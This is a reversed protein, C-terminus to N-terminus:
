KTDDELRKKQIEQRKQKEAEIKPLNMYNSGYGLRHNKRRALAMATIYDLSDSNVEVGLVYRKGKELKDAWLAERQEETYLKNRYYTPLALKRGNPATYTQVTNAGNYRNEKARRTHIYARGIGKSTLIIPNYTKHQQDTKLIYKTVYSATRANTYEGIWVFGYKWQNEILAKDPTWIFGHLHLHETAEHGLETVLWHKVSRKTQKRIRELFRRTAVTAVAHDLTYGYIGPQKTHVAETLERLSETSLTLTVFHAQSDHKLEEIIRIRWGNYKQKKCEMCKGCPVQVTMLKLNNVPPIVGGNKMTATYRKNQVARPYLCM